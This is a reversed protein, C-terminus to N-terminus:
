EGSSTGRTASWVILVLLGVVLVGATLIWHEGLWHAGAALAAVIGAGVGVKQAKSAPPQQGKGPMPVKVSVVDAAPLVAASFRFGDDKIFRPDSKVIAMFQRHGAKSRGV